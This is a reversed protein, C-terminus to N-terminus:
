AFGHGRDVQVLRDALRDALQGALRGALFWASFDRNTAELRRIASGLDSHKRKHFSSRFTVSPRDIHPNAVIAPMGNSGQAPYGALM